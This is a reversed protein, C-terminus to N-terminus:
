QLIEESLWPFPIPPAINVKQSCKGEDEWPTCHLFMNIRQGPSLGEPGQVDKVRGNLGVPPGCTPVARPPRKGPVKVTVRLLDMEKGPSNLMYDQWVLCWGNGDVMLRQHLKRCCFAKLASQWCESECQCQLSLVTHRWQVTHCVEEEVRQQALEWQAEALHGSPPSLVSSHSNIALTEHTLRVCKPLMIDAPQWFCGCDIWWALIPSWLVEDSWVIFSSDCM